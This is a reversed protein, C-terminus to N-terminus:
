SSQKVTRERMGADACPAAHRASAFSGKARSPANGFEV